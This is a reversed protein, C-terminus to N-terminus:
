RQFNVSEVGGLPTTPKQVSDGIDREFDYGVNELAPYGMLYLYVAFGPLFDLLTGEAVDFMTQVRREGSVGVTFCALANVKWSALLLLSVTM